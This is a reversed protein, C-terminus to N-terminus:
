RFGIPFEILRIVRIDGPYRSFSVDDVGDEDSDDIEEDDDEDFEDLSDYELAKGTFYDM